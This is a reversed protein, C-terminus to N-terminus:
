SRQKTQAMREMRAYNVLVRFPITPLVEVDISLNYIM